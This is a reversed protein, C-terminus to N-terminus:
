VHSVGLLRLVELLDKYTECFMGHAETYNDKGRLYHVYLLYASPYVPEWFYMWDRDEDEERWKEFAEDLAQDEEDTLDKNLGDQRYQGLREKIGKLTDPHYRRVKLSYVTIETNEGSRELMPKPYNVGYEAAIEDLEGTLWDLKYGASLNIWEGKQIRWWTWVLPSSVPDTEVKFSNVLKVYENVDMEVVYKKEPWKVTKM